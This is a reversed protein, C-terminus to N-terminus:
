IGGLFPFHEPNLELCSSIRIVGGMFNIRGELGQSILTTFSVYSIMPLNWAAAVRASTACFSQNGPGIFAHVGHARQETMASIGVLESCRTDNWHVSLTFELSSSNNVTEAAVLFAAAFQLDVTILHDCSTFPYLLVVLVERKSKNPESNTQISTLHFLFLAHLITGLPWAAM